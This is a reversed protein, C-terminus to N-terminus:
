DVTQWRKTLANTVPGITDPQFLSVWPNIILALISIYLVIALAGILFRLARINYSVYYAFSLFQGIICCLVAAFVPQSIATETISSYFKDRDELIPGIIISNVGSCLSLMISIMSIWLAQIRINKRRVTLFSSPNLACFCTGCEPCSMKVCGQLDYDCKRCYM